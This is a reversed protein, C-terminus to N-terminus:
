RARADIGDRRRQSGGAGHGRRKLADGPGQTQEDPYGETSDRVKIARAAKPAGM